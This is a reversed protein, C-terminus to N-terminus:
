QELFLIDCFYQACFGVKIGFKHRRKAASHLFNHFFYFCDNLRRLQFFHFVCETGFFYIPDGDCLNHAAAILLAPSFIVSSGLQKEINEGFYLEAHDNWVFAYVMDKFYNNAGDMCIINAISLYKDAIYLANDSDTISFFAFICELIMFTFVANAIQM